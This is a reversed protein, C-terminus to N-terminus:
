RCLSCAKGPGSLMLLFEDFRDTTGVVDFHNLTDLMAEWGSEDVQPGILM